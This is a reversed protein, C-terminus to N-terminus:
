IHKSLLPCQLREDGDRRQCLEEVQHQKVGAGEAAYKVRAAPILVVRTAAFDTPFIDPRAM